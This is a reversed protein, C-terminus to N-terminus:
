VPQPFVRKFPSSADPCSKLRAALAILDVHAKARSPHKEAKENPIMGKEAAQLPRKMVRSQFSVVEITGQYLAAPQPKHEGV